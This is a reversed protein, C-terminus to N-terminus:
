APPGFLDQQAAVPLSVDAQWVHGAQTIFLQGGSVDILTRAISLALPSRSSAVDACGTKITLSIRGASVNADVSVSCGSGVRLAEVVLNLLGQRCTQRDAWIIAGPEVALAFSTQQSHAIPLVAAFIDNLLGDLPVAEPRRARDGDAIIASLALTDEASKLLAAGGDAIHRVYAAYRPDGVPGFIERGILECFGIVATLPTRIEHSIAALLDCFPEPTAALAHSQQGAAYQPLNANSEVIM